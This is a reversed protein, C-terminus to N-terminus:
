PSFNISHIFRYCLLIHHSQRWKNVNMVRVCRVNFCIIPAFFLPPIFVALSLSRSLSLPIWAIPVSLWAILSFLHYSERTQILSRANHTHTYAHIWTHSHKHTLSHSDYRTNNIRAHLLKSDWEFAYLLASSCLRTSFFPVAFFFIM